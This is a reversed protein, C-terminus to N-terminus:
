CKIMIERHKDSTNAYPVGPTVPGLCLHKPANWPPLAQLGASVQAKRFIGLSIAWLDQANM